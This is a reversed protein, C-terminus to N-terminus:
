SARIFNPKLGCSFFSRTSYRFPIQGGGVQRHALERWREHVLLPKQRRWEEESFVSLTDRGLGPVGIGLARTGGERHESAYLPDLEVHEMRAWESIHTVPMTELDAERWNPFDLQRELWAAVPQTVFFPRHGVGPAFGVDFIGDSRGARRATRRQLDEFFSSANKPIRVTEDELGNFILTPGRSAHLSYIM